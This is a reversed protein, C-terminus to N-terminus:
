PRPRKAAQTLVGSPKPHIYTQNAQQVTQDNAQKNMQQIAQDHPSAPMLYDHISQMPHSLFDIGRGAAQGGRHLQDMIPQLPGFNTSM